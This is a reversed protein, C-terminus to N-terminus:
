AGPLGTLERGPEGAPFLPMTDDHIPHLIIPLTLRCDTTPLRGDDITLSCQINVTRLNSNPDNLSGNVILSKDSNDLRNGPSSTLIAPRSPNRGIVTRACQRAAPYPGISFSLWGTHSSGACKLMGNKTTSQAARRFLCPLEGKRGSASQDIKSSDCERGAGREVEGLCCGARRM